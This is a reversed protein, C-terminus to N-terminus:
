DLGVERTQQSQNLGLVDTLPIVTFPVNLIDSGPASVQLVMASSSQWDQVNPMSFIQVDDTNVASVSVASFATCAAVLLWKLSAM